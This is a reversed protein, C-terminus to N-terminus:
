VEDSDKQIRIGTLDFVVTSKVHVVYGICGINIIPQNEIISSLKIKNM